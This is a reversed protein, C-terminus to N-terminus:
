RESVADSRLGISAASRDGPGKPPVRVHAGILREM